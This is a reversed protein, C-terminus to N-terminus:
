LRRLFDGSWKAPDPHYATVVTAPGQKDREIGWVVHFANGNYGM